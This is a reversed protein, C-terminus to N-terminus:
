AVDQETWYAVNPVVVARSYTENFRLMSVGDQVFYSITSSDVYHFTHSEGNTTFVCLVVMGAHIQKEEDYDNYDNM